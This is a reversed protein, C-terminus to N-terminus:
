KVESLKYHLRGVAGVCCGFTIKKSYLESTSGDKCFLCMNLPEAMWILFERWEVGM